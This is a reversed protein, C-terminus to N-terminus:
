EILRNARMLLSAPIILGLSRATKLNIVTEFKIPQEIPLDAPKAGRLIRDVYGGMRRVLDLLDIGNV